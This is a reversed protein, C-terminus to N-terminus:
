ASLATIQHRLQDEVWEPRNRIDSEWFRAVAYGCAAFYANQSRDTNVRRRQRRDLGSFKAPNGHWYDGDFQVVLNCSPVFADVCFKGGIMHQAKYEAGIRDLMAYGAREVGNPKLTQQKMNMERLMESREPDNDRCELSCYIPAGRLGPVSPSVRFPQGCIKCTYEIKNRGQWENLHELCCFYHKAKELRGLSLYFSDGCWECTVVKGNNRKQANSKRSCERSCFRHQSDIVKGCIPCPHYGTRTGIVRCEASCYIGVRRGVRGPSVRYEFSKGCTKCVHTEYPMDCEREASDLRHLIVCLM